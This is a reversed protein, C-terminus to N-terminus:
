TCNESGCSLTCIRFDNNNKFSCIFKDDEFMKCSVYSLIDITQELEVKKFAMEIYYYFYIDMDKKGYIITESQISDGSITLLNNNIASKSFYGFCDLDILLGNDVSLQEIEKNENLHIAYSAESLLLNYTNHPSKFLFPKSNFNIGTNNQFKTSNNLKNLVYIYNSTIVNYYENNANFIIAFSTGEILRTIEQKSLIIECFLFIFFNFTKYVYKM